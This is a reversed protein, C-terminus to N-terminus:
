ELLAAGLQTHGAGAITRVAAEANAQSGSASSILFVCMGVVPILWLFSRSLSIRMTRRKRLPLGAPVHLTRSSVLDNPTRPALGYAVPPATSPLSFFDIYTHASIAGM